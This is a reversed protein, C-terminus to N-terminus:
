STSQQQQMHHLYAADRDDNDDYKKYNDSVAMSSAHPSDKPMGCSKICLRLQLAGSSCISQELTLILVKDNKKRKLCEANTSSASRGFFV